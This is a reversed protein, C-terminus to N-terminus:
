EGPRGTKGGALSTKAIGPAGIILVTSGRLYGGDLMSDLREVGTTM